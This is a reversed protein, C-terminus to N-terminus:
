SRLGGLGPEIEGLDGRVDDRGQRRGAVGNQKDGLIAM